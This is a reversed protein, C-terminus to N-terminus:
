KVLTIKGALTKEFASVRYFYVGSAAKLGYEDVGDWSIKGPGAGVSDDLLRRVMQGRPSYIEVLVRGARSMEYAIEISPNFPNPYASASFLRLPPVGSVADVVVM